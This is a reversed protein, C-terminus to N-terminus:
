QGVIFLFECLTSGFAEGSGVVQFVRVLEGIGFLEVTELMAHFEVFGDCGALVDGEVEVGGVLEGVFFHLEDGVSIHFFYAEFVLGIEDVAVVVCAVRVAM